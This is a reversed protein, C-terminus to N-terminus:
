PRKKSMRGGYGEPTSMTLMLSYRINVNIVNPPGLVTLVLKIRVCVRRRYRALGGSVLTPNPMSSTNTADSIRM